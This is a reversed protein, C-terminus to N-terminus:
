ERSKLKRMYFKRGNYELEILTGEKLLKEVVSWDANAKELFERVAEERMPHVATISLLDEEVNGTFAFANGEYGILYEVREEGLIESFIQYARHIVEEKAPKVWPEAPPRTPIAIYAKDPKLEKLFEAIKEFEDGYDIEDVLMTETVVKGRFDKRFELMSELIKELSLSKHPRNIRRWLPESVADVKLSVFDFKLLDERVDERWILSSNTLIALPIGFTKLLEVERGLNIDLTPEGDPVFTIYDIRENRALAEEVKEKVEQFILEPEYFPRRELEMRLTKGIQCYVCAFSCVKDPINNVGLSRGLRRSPVPGFAIM